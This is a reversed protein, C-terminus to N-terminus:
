RGYLSKIVGWTCEDVPSASLPELPEFAMGPMMCGDETFYQLLLKVEGDGLEGPAFHLVLTASSEGPSIWDSDFFFNGMMYFGYASEWYMDMSSPVVGGDSIYGVGLIPLPMDGSNPDRVLLDVRDIPSDSGRHVTVLVRDGAPDCVGFCTSTSGTSPVPDNLTFLGCNTNNESESGTWFDTAAAVGGCIALLLVALCFASFGFKSNRM